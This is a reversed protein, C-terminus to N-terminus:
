ADRWVSVDFRPRRSQLHVSQGVLCATLKNSRSHRVIGIKRGVVVEGSEAKGRLGTARGRAESRMPKSWFEKEGHMNSPSRNERM